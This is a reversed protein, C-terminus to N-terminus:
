QCHGDKFTAFGLDKCGKTMTLMRTDRWEETLKVFLISSFTLVIIMCGIVFYEKM